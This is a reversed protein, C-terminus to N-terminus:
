MISYRKSIHGFHPIACHIGGWQPSLMSVTRNVRGILDMRMINLPANETM